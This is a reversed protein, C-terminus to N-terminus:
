NNYAANNMYHLTSRILGLLTLDSQEKKEKKKSM